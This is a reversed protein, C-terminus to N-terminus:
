ETLSAGSALELVRVGLENGVVVMQGLAVVRDGVMIEAPEGVERELGLVAGPQLQMLEGLTLQARGLRVTVQLPVATLPALVPEALQLETTGALYRETEM